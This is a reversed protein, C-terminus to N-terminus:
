TPTQDLLEAIAATVIMGIPSSYSARPTASSSPLKHPLRFSGVGAVGSWEAPPQDAAKGEPPQQAEVTPPRSATEQEGGWM